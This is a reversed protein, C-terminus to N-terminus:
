GFLVQLTLSGNEPTFKSRTISCMRDIITIIPNLRLRIGFLILLQIYPNRHTGPSMFM